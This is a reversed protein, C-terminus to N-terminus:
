KQKNLILGLIALIIYFDALNYIGINGFASLYIYDFVYGFYIREFVNAFAGSILLVWFLRNVYSLKLFNRRLYFIMGALLIFYICYMLFFPFNISFAFNYNKYGNVIMARVFFCLCFLALFLFVYTATFERKRKIVSLIKNILNVKYLKINSQGGM